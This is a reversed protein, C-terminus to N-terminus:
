TYFLCTMYLVFPDLVSVFPHTCVISLLSKKACPDSYNGSDITMGDGSLTKDFVYVESWMLKELGTVASTILSAHTNALFCKFNNIYIDICDM